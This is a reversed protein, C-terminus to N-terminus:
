QSRDARRLERKAAAKLRDRIWDSLSLGAMAAAQEFEAKEDDAARLYIRAGQAQVGRPPRGRKRQDNMAVM